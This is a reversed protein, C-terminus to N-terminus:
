QVYKQLSDPLSLHLRDIAKQRFRLQPRGKRWYFAGFSNKLSKYTRYNTAFIPKNTCERSIDDFNKGVLVVVASSCNNMIIFKSSNKLIEKTDQDAYIRIPTKIFVSSLIKEYLKLEYIDSAYIYTCFLILTFFIKKM